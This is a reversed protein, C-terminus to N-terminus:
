RCYQTDLRCAEKLEAKGKESQGAKMYAVGLNYRTAANKPNIRASREYHSVAESFRSLSAFLFGLKAHV